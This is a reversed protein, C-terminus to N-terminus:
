PILVQNFALVIVEEPFEAANIVPSPSVLVILAVTAASLVRGTQM